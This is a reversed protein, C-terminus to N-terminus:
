SEHPPWCYTGGSSSGMAKRWIKEPFLDTKETLHGFFESGGKAETPVVYANERGEVIFYLLDSSQIGGDKFCVRRIDDWRFEQNWEDDLEGLVIVRIKEEDFRIELLESLPVGKIQKLWGKIKQIFKM